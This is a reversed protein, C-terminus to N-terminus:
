AVKPADALLGTVVTWLDKAPGILSLLDPSSSEIVALLKPLDASLKAIDSVRATLFSQYQTVASDDLGVAQPSALPRGPASVTAEVRDTGRLLFAVIAGALPTPSETM